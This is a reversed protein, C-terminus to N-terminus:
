VTFTLNYWIFCSLPYPNSQNLINLYSDIHSHEPSNNNTLKLLM